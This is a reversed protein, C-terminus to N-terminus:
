QLTKNMILADEGDGYYRPRAYRGIYGRKLYLAMAAANSVRVELFMTKGGAAAVARELVDLMGEAVGCRRFAADVAINALDAEEGSSLAFAYGIVAGDKEAAVTITRDNFFTDALMSYSWPDSFCKKELAAITLIDEYVWTRYVIGNM